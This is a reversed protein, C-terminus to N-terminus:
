TKYQQRRILAKLRALLEFQRFPKVLYDDAGWELAKVINAEENRTTLILVPVQSSLRIQKLVQFGDIDPLNLDLVIIEPAEKSLMAIGHEGLNTSVVQAEQWHKVFALSIAEITHQDSDIILVKM